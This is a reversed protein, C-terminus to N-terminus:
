HSPATPLTMDYEEVMSETKHRSFMWKDRRDGDSDSIAKSRLKHIGFRDDEKVSKHTRWYQWNTGFGDETYKKGKENPIVYPSLDVGPTKRALTLAAM